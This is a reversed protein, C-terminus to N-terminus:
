GQKRRRKKAEPQAGDDQAKKKKAKRDKGTIWGSVIERSEMRKKAKEQRKLVREEKQRAIEERAWAAEQEDFLPRVHPYLTPFARYLARAYLTELKGRWERDDAGFVGPIEEMLKVRMQENPRFVCAHLRGEEEYVAVCGIVDYARQGALTKALWSSFLSAAFAARMRLSPAAKPDIVTVRRYYLRLREGMAVPRIARISRLPIEVVSRMSDGLMRQLVLTERGLAYTYGEVTGQVFLVLLALAYLYLLFYLMGTGGLLTVIIQAASLRLVIGIVGRVFARGTLAKPRDKQLFIIEDM